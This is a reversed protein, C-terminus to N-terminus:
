FQSERPNLEVGLHCCGIDLHFLTPRASPIASIRPVTYAHSKPTWVKKAMSVLFIALSIGITFLAGRSSCSKDTESAGPCFSENMPMSNSTGHSSTSSPLDRITPLQARIKKREPLQIIRHTSLGFPKM